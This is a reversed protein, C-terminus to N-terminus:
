IHTSLVKVSLPSFYMSSELLIQQFVYKRRKRLSFATKLTLFFFCKLLFNGTGWIEQDWAVVLFPTSPSHLGGDAGSYPCSHSLLVPSGTQYSPPCQSVITQQPSTLPFPYVRRDRARRAREALDAPGCRLGM